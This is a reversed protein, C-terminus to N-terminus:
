CPQTAAKDALLRGIRAILDSRALIEQDANSRLPKLVVTQQAIEDEGLVETNPFYSAPYAGDVIPAAARGKPLADEAATKASAEAAPLPDLGSMLACGLAVGVTLPVIWTLLPAKKSM